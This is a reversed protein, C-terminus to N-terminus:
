DALSVKRRQTTGEEKRAAVRPLYNPHVQGTTPDTFNFSWSGHDVDADPIDNFQDFKNSPVVPEVASGVDPLDSFIDFKSM